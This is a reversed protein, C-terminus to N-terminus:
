AMLQWAPGAGLQEGVVVPARQHSTGVAIGALFSGCAGVLRLFPSGVAM